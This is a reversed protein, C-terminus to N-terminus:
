LVGLSRLKLGEPTEVSVYTFGAAALKRLKLGEPSEISVYIFGAAARIFVYILPKVQLLLLTLLPYPIQPIPHVLLLPPDVNLFLLPQHLSLFHLCQLSAQVIEVIASTM